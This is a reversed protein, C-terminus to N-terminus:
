PRRTYTYRSPRHRKGKLRDPYGILQVRVSPPLSQWYRSVTESATRMIPVMGEFVETWGRSLERIRRQADESLADNDTM